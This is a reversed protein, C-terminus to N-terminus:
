RIQLRARKHSNSDSYFNMLGNLYIPPCSLGGNSSVLPQSWWALQGRNTGTVLCGEKRLAGDFSQSPITLILLDSVLGYIYKRGCSPHHRRFFYLSVEPQVHLNSVKRM